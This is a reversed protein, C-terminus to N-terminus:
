HVQLNDFRCFAKTPISGTVDGLRRLEFGALGYINRQEDFFAFRDLDVGAGAGVHAARLRLQLGLGTRFENIGREQGRNQRANMHAFRRLRRVIQGRLASRFVTAARAIRFAAPFDDM